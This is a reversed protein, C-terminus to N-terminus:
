SAIEPPPSLLVQNKKKTLIQLLYSEDREGLREGGM